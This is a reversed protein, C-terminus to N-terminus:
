ATVVQCVDEVPVWVDQPKAALDRAIIAEELTEHASCVAWENFANRTDFMEVRFHKGNTTIRYTTM